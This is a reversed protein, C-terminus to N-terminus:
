KSQGEEGTPNFHKENGNDDMISILQQEANQLQDHCFQSLKMGKKYLDIADELPVEGQELQHVIEELEEISKAFSQKKEAM